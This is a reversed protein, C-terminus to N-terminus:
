SRPSPSTPKAFIRRGFRFGLYAAAAVLVVILVLPGDGGLALEIRALPDADAARSADIDALIQDPQWAADPIMARITGDPAIEVTNESHIIGAVPDPFAAIGFRAAFDLTPQADGVAM